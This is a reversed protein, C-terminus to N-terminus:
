HFLLSQRPICIRVVLIHHIWAKQILLGGAAIYGKRTVGRGLPASEQGECLTGPSGQHQSPCSGCRLLGRAKARLHIFKSIPFELDLKLM